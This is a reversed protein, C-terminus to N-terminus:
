FYKACFNYLFDFCVNQTWYCKTSFQATKSIIYYFTKSGPLGCIDIHRVRMAHLIVLTASVCESCTVIKAKGSCCHNRSRESINRKNTCQRDQWKYVFGFTKLLIILFLDSLRRLPYTAQRNWIGIRVIKKLFHSFFRFKWYSYLVDPCSEFHGKGHTFKKYQLEFNQGCFFVNSYFHCNHNYCVPKATIIVQQSSM